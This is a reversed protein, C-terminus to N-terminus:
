GERSLVRAGRAVAAAGGAREVAGGRRAGVGRQSSSAGGARAAGERGGARHFLHARQPVFDSDFGGGGDPLPYPFDMLNHRVFRSRAALQGVLQFRGNDERFYRSKLPGPAHKMAEASYTFTQALHLAGQSADSGLVLSEAAAGAEALMILLTAVEEGTACGASWVNLKQQKALLRPLVKAQMTELQRVDRYVETRHVLLTGMLESLEAAGAFTSLHRLYDDETRAGIKAFIATELRSRQQASLQAGMRDAVYQCVKPHSM